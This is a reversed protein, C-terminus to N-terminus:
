DVEEEDDLSRAAALEILREVQPMMNAPNPHLGEIVLANDYLQIIALNIIEDEPRERVLNSLDSILPHGRNIELIKKPIEYDETM